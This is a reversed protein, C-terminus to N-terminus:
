GCSQASSAQEETTWWLPTVEASWNPCWPCIGRIQGDCKVWRGPNTECTSYGNCYIFRGDCCTTQAQCVPCYITAQSDCQVWNPGSSCVSQGQCQIVTVQCNVQATCSAQAPGALFLSAGVVCLLIAFARRM